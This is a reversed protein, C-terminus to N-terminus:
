DDFNLFNPLQDAAWWAGPNARIHESFFAFLRDANAAHGFDPSCDYVPSFVVKYRGAGLRLCVFAAMPCGRKQAMRFAGPAVARLKGLFRIKQADTVQGTPAESLVVIGEGRKLVDYFYKLKTEVFLAKGGHVYSEIGVYKRQFYRQVSPAVRADEVVNSTMLNLKCGALGQQVFGMLAADFHMTLLVLGKGSSLQHKVADLGDFTCICERARDLAFWHGELEERSANLFREVVLMEVAEDSLHPTIEAMALRTKHRVYHSRLGVTRWDLDLRYCLYGLLTAIGMGLRLPLRAALPLVFRFMADVVLRLFFWHLRM